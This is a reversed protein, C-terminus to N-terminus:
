LIQVRMKKLCFIEGHALLADVLYLYRESAAFHLATYGKHRRDSSKANLGEELLKQESM